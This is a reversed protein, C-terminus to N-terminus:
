PPTSNTVVPSNNRTISRSDEQVPDIRFVPYRAAIAEFEPLPADPPVPFHTRGSSAVRCYEKLIPGREAPPVEILDVPRRRGRKIAAKGGAARVNKVWDSNEGLMSVLHRKGNVTAAVLVQSQVRGTKRGSVQLTVMMSPPLGLSAYWTWARGFGTPRWDRYFLRMLRSREAPDNEVM